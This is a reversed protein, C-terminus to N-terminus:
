LKRELVTYVENFGYDKLFRKWGKRGHVYVSDAGNNKAYTNIFSLYDDKFISTDNSALFSINCVRKKPYNFFEIISVVGIEDDIECVILTYKGLFIGSLIDSIDFEDSNYKLAKKIYISYSPWKEAVEKASIVKIIKGM